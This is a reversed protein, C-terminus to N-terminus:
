GFPMLGTYSAAHCNCRLLSVVGSHCGSPTSSPLTIAVASSVGIVAGNISTWSLPNSKSLWICVRLFVLVTSNRNLHSFSRTQSFVVGVPRAAPRVVAFFENFTIWCCRESMSLRWAISSINFLAPRLRLVLIKTWSLGITRSLESAILSSMAIVYTHSTMCGGNGGGTTGGFEGVVLTSGTSGRDTDPWTSASISSTDGASSSLIVGPIRTNAHTDDSDVCPTSGCSGRDAFAWPTASINM